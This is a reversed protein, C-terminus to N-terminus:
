PLCSGQKDLPPPLTSLPLPEGEGLEAAGTCTNSYRPPVPDDCSSSAPRAPSLSHSTQWPTASTALSRLLLCSEPLALHTAFPSVMACASKMEASNPM